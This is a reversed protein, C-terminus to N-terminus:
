AALLTRVGLAFAPLAFLNIVFAAIFFFWPAVGTTVIRSLLTKGAWALSTLGALPFVALFPMM